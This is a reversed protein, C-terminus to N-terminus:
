PSLVSLVPAQRGPVICVTCMFCETATLQINAQVWAGQLAIAICLLGHPALGWRVEPPVLSSMGDAAAGNNGPPESEHSEASLALAASGAPLGKNRSADAGALAVGSGGGGRRGPGEFPKVAAHGDLEAERAGPAPERPPQLAAFDWPDSPAMPLRQPGSAAAAADTSRRATVADGAHGLCCTRDRHSSPACTM